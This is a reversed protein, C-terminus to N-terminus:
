KPQRLDMPDRKSAAEMNQNRERYDIVDGIEYFAGDITFLLTMSSHAQLLTRFEWGLLNQLRVSRAKPHKPITGKCIHGIAEGAVWIGSADRPFHAEEIHITVESLNSPIPTDKQHAKTQYDVDIRNSCASNVFTIAIAACKFM